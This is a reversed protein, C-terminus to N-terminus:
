RIGSLVEDSRGTVSQGAIQVSGRTPADLAGLLHLLTSKGTGSAGVVAVMQGRNVQLNVGDLVTISGGDGGVYVKTLDVAELVIMRSSDGGRPLATGGAARSLDHRHGRGRSERARDVDRGVM